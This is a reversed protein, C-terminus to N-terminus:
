LGVKIQHLTQNSVDHATALLAAYGYEGLLYRKNGIPDIYWSYGNPAVVIKGDFNHNAAKVYRAAADSNLPSYNNAVEQGDDYGDGDTDARKPDTGLAKELEDPLGDNDTDAGLLCTKYKAFVSMQKDTAKGAGLPNYGNRIEEGDSYGDHDSDILNPSTGLENEIADALGDHDSDTMKLYNLCGLPINGLDAFSIKAGFRKVLSVVQDSQGAYYRQGDIPNVYWLQGSTNAAQMIEGSNKAAIAADPQSSLNTEQQLMSNLDKPSLVLTKNNLYKELANVNIIQSIQLAVEPGSGLSCDQATGLLQSESPNCVSPTRGVIVRQQKALVCATWSGYAVSQCVPVVATAASGPSHATYQTKTLVSFTGATLSDAANGAMDRLGEVVVTATKAENDNALNLSGLWHGGTYSSVAATYPSHSLGNITVTLPQDYDIGSIEDGVNIDINVTGGAEPVAGVTLGAVVPAISDVTFSVDLNNAATQSNQGNRYDCSVYAMKSGDTSQDPLTCISSTSNGTCANAASMAAYSLDNDSWRCDLQFPGTNVVITPSLRSITYPASTDNKVSAISPSDASIEPVTTTTSTGAQSSAFLYATTVAFPNLPLALAFSGNDVDATTSAIEMGLQNRLSLRSGAEATGRLRYSTAGHAAISGSPDTIVPAEPPSPLQIRFSLDLNNAATQYYYDNNNDICSVYANKQGSRGQDPLSCITTTGNTSCNNSSSIDAYPLDSASWRCAIDFLSTVTVSPTTTSVVYPATTSSGVSVVAPADATVRPVTTTASSTGEENTAVAYILTPGFPNLALDLSFAGADSDPVAGGIDGGKWNYFYVISSTEATGAFSYSTVGHVSISSTPDTMIPDDPFNRELDFAIDQNNDATQYYYDNNADTCSVHVAKEGNSGQYSLTCTTTTGVTVCDNSASMGNYGLDRNDWRCALDFNSTIVIDPTRDTIVYPAQSVGGVSALVPRDSSIVPLTTTSSANDDGDIATAYFQTPGFPNLDFELAFANTGEDPVVGGIDSFQWNYFHIMATPDGTGSLTYATAGSATTSATPDTFVPAEPNALAPMALALFVLFCLFGFFRNLTKM